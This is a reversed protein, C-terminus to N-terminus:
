RKAGYATCSRMARVNRSFGHSGSKVFGSKINVFCYKKTIIDVFEM